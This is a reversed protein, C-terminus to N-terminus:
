QIHACCQALCFIHCCHMNRMLLWVHWYYVSVYTHVHTMRCIWKYKSIYSRIWIHLFSTSLRFVGSFHEKSLRTLQQQQHQKNPENASEDFWCCCFKYSLIIYVFWVEVLWLLLWVIKEYNKKKTWKYPSSWSSISRVCVNNLVVQKIKRKETYRMKKEM